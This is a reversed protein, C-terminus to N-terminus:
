RDQGVTNNPDDKDRDTLLPKDRTLLEAILYTGLFVALVMIIAM